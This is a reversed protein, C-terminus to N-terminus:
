LCEECRTSTQAQARHCFKDIFLLKEHIGYHNLNQKQLRITEVSPGRQFSTPKITNAQAVINISSTYAQQQDAQALCLFSAKFCQKHELYINPEITLQTKQTTNIQNLFFNDEQILYCLYHDESPMSFQFIDTYWHSM